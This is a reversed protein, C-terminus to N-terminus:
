SVAHYTGGAQGGVGGGCVGSFWGVMRTVGGLLTGNSLSASTRSVNKGGMDLRSFDRLAAECM